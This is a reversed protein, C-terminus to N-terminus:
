GKRNRDTTEVRLPEWVCVRPCLRVRRLWDKVRDGKKTTKKSGGLWIEGDDRSM